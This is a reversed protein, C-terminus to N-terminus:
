DLHKLFMQWKPDKMKDAFFLSSMTPKKPQRILKLGAEDPTRDGKRTNINKHCTVLNEWTNKGGRSRPVIHDINLENPTYQVGSFQCVYNDRLMVNKKSLKPTIDPIRNYNTCIVINPVRIEAKATRISLDYDRVPLKIWDEWKMPTLDTPRSYDENEVDVDSYSMNLAMLNGTCFNEFVKKPTKLTVPFWNKNLELVVLKNLISSM